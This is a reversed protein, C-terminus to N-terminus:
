TMHFLTMMGGLVIGFIMVMVGAIRLVYTLPDDEDHVASPPAAPRGFLRRVAAQRFAMNFGIVALVIGFLDIVIVYGPM